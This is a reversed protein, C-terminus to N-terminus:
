RGKEGERTGELSVRCDKRRVTFSVVKAIEELKSIITSVPEGTVFRAQEGGEEFLGSLDFGRSFSIIDFANLSTPRTIAPAPAGEPVGLDRGPLLRGLLRVGLGVRDGGAGGGSLLPPPPPPPSPPSDLDDCQHFEDNEIYFKIHRFGKKFWRYQMIEPITIRTHPNTDLLRLPAPHAGPSGSPVASSGRTSRGTCPWSTQRPLPPLRGHPRLPHRRLVLHRRQRRRLGAARPGGPRRLGPHRLLHPLTRGPPDPRVRRQTRLRLGQPRRDRRRPPERAQPRPPLRRPRPLVPRRLHAAPLVQPRGGGQPPGQRGEPLARRRPRVGHRLLDQDQHGHGRLAPRHQPPPRPPPHLDRAQHPRRPRVQPDEGQRPGQHRRHRQHPRQPSPLGQRLHRPRPAQRGRLPRPLSTASSSPLKPHPHPHPHDAM